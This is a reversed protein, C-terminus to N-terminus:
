RLRRSGKLAALEARLATLEALVDVNNVVLAAGSMTVKGVACISVSGPGASLCAQSPPAVQGDDSIQPAYASLVVAGTDEAATQAGAGIAVSYNAGGMAFAGGLAVSLTGSAHSSKGGM